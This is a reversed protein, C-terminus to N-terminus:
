SANEEEGTEAAGELEEVLFLTQQYEVMQKSHFTGESGTLGQVVVKTKNDILISM